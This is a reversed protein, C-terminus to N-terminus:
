MRDPIRCEALSGDRRGLREDFLGFLVRRSAGLDFPLRVPARMRSADTSAMDKAIEATV